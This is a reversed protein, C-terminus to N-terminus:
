KNFKVGLLKQIKQVRQKTTPDYKAKGSEIESYISQQLNLKVSIDKQSLKKSVRANIIQSCLSKPIKKIEFNEQENEIKIKHLDINNKSVIKKPQNRLKLKPNGINVPVHDQHDMKYLM